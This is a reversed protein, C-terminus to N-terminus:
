SGKALAETLERRSEIDLKDYSASLHAEVTKITVFLSQAIQRNTLGTAALEAVRRESPTLSEIGIPTYRRVKEGSAELETQARRAIRTAGCRRAVKFADRLPQRAELQRNARRLAEGLDVLAHVRELQRPSDELMGAALRLLEIEEEGGRAAAVARLVHSKSSPVGWRNAWEMQEEAVAIAQDRMGLAVLARAAWPSAGAPGAPGFGMRESQNALATFDDRVEEYSGQEARLHCRVTLLMNSIPTDPLPGRNVGIAELEAEAAELEDREIMIEALPGTFLLVMPAIGAMRALEFAQRLDAEARVLDGYGWAVFGSLFWARLLDPTGNREQAIELARRVAVQAADVEDAVSLAMVAMSAAVPETEEAFIVANNGLARKAADVCKQAPASPDGMAARIEMTAALRGAPSDAKIQGAYHDLNVRPLSPLLLSLTNLQAELQFAQEIDGEAIAVGVADKLMETAEEIRGSMAMSRTMQDAWRVRLSPDREMEARLDAEIAPLVAHDAARFGATLLPKLVAPLLDAPPPELLARNLYAIASRPAGTDLAREAAGILVEIAARDERPEGALLQAAVREPSARRDRLVQAARAHADAREGAPLDAYIANRVLPHIFRLSIDDALIASARLEDAANRAAEVEIGTLEAVLRLDIGEGLIAVARAARGAEPSLRALRMLATKAVRDPTLGRVVEAQEATPPIDQGRLTHALECLLFPNGGSLEHCTNAFVGEPAADLEQALLTATAKASLPTLTLNRVGTDALIGKLQESADPADSRAAVLLLVPLEELRPLLFGLFELSAPDALHADDLCLLLPTREALAATVWYLGHLVAFADVHSDGGDLGLAGRAAEAGELVSELEGKSLEAVREAFLQRVLAFPFDRELETARASLVVAERGAAIARAEKLLRTKGLGASAEIALASGRGAVAEDLAAALDALEKERELLEAV